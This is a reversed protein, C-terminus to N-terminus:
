RKAYFPCITRYGCWSCAGSTLGNPLFRGAMIAEYTRAVADAFVGIARDSVPGGAPIPYYAPDQKKYRVLFDLQVDTETKGTLERYGLAYGTMALQYTGGDTPKRASTKWDRVKGKDDALDITGSWLMGDIEYQIPAEVLV